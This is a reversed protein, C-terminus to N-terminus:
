LNPIPGRQPAGLRLAGPKAPPYKSVGAVDDRSHGTALLPGIVQEEPWYDSIQRRRVLDALMTARVFRRTPKRLFWSWGNRIASRLSRSRTQGDILAWVVADLRKDIDKALREVTDRDLQPWRPLPVMEAASGFLPILPIEGNRAATGQVSDGNRVTLSQALFLQCNRRGLQFDHARFLESLFGGFGGLLGCAIAFREEPAEAMDDTPRTPRPIRRRPSVLYRSYDREDVAPALESMRFRAQNILAPYLASLIATLTPAPANEPLFKPPDPFPAVMIIARGRGSKQAENPPGGFLAYQAYDFPNNNVMGGDVTQFM